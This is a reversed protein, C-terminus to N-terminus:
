ILDAIHSRKDIIRCSIMHATTGFGNDHLLTTSNAFMPNGQMTERCDCSSGMGTCAAHRWLMGCVHSTYLGHQTIQNLLFGCQGQAPTSQTSSARADTWLFLPSATSSLGICVTKSAWLLWISCRLCCMVEKMGKQPGPCLM